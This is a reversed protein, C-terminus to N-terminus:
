KNADVTDIHHQKDWKGLLVEIKSGDPNTHIQKVHKMYCFEHQWWGQLTHTHTHTHIHTQAMQKFLCHCHHCM